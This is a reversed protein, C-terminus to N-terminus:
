GVEGGPPVIKSRQERQREYAAWDVPPTKGIKLEKPATPQGNSDKKEEVSCQMGKDEHWVHLWGMLRNSVLLKDEPLEAGGPLIGEVGKLELHRGMVKGEQMSRLWHEYMPRWKLWRAATIEVEDVKITSKQARVAFVSFNDNINCDRAGAQQWGGLYVPNFGKDLTAGVEEGVERELGDFSLEAMEIAGGPTSWSGREWVLLLEDGVSSATQPEAGPSFVLGTAGEISTAYPPVAPKTGLWTYYVFDPEIKLDSATSSAGDETPAEDSMGASSSLKSSLDKVGALDKSLAALDKREKSSLYASARTSQLGPLSSGTREQGLATHFLRDRKAYHFEFAHHHLKPFDIHRLERERFVVYLAFRHTDQKKENEKELAKVVDCAFWSLRPCTHQCPTEMDHRLSIWISSHAGRQVVVQHASQGPKLMGEPPKALDVLLFGGQGEVSGEKWEGPSGDAAELDDKLPLKPTRIGPYGAKFKLDLIAQLLASKIHQQQQQQFSRWPELHIKGLSPDERSVAANFTESKSGCCGM